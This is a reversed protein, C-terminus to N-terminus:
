QPQLHPLRTKILDYSSTTQAVLRYLYFINETGTDSDRAQVHSNQMNVRTKGDVAVTDKPFNRLKMM